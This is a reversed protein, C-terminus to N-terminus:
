PAAGQPLGLGVDRLDDTALKLYVATSSASHHGFLDGITKLPVQARLLGVARAYRFAHAGHRGKPPRIGLRHLRQNIMTGLSSSHAFPRYPARSYLFVERHTTAPRGHRLYGLLANGVQDTLPLFAEGGRKSHRVRFQERRWDIDELRLRVVEGARLGYTALLLLIAYDRRGTKTRDQRTAALLAKIHADTLAAPISEFRYLKPGTVASTLDHDILEAAHLYRLFSRLCHAVGARTARRLRPNRWVFFADVDKVTLKRLTAAKAREGFWDLFVRASYCNKALTPQSFGHLDTLWRGYGVLVKRRFRELPTVAKVAPPWEGQVLRLLHQPANIQQNRWHRLDRPQGRTRQARELRHALYATVHEPRVADLSLDRTRLFRVFARASSLYSKITRASYREARLQTHLREVAPDPQSGPPWHGHALRLLGHIPATRWACYSAVCTPLRGHRARYRALTERAYAAVHGPQVDEISIAHSDLFALFARCMHFHYARTAHKLDKATLRKELRELWPHVPTPPPWQGIFFRLLAHISGTRSCRWGVFHKPPRGYRKKYQRFEHAVFRAVDAPVVAKLACGHKELYLLFRRAVSSYHKITARSYRKKVLLVGFRDIWTQASTDRRSM